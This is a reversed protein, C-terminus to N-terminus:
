AARLRFINPSLTSGLMTSSPRSCSRQHAEVDIGTDQERQIGGVGIGRAGIDPPLGMWCGEIECTQLADLKAVGEGERHKLLSQSRGFRVGRPLLHLTIQRRAQQDGPWLSPRVHNPICFRQNLIVGFVNATVAQVNKMHRGGQYQACSVKTRKVDPLGSQSLECSKLDLWSSTKQAFEAM